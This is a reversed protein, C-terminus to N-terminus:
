RTEGSIGENEAFIMNQTYGIDWLLYFLFWGDSVWLGLWSAV